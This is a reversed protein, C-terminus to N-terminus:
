RGSIMEDLWEDDFGETGLAPRIEQSVPPRSQQKGGTGTAGKDAYGIDILV